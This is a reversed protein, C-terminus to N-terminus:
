ASRAPVGVWRQGAPIDKTVVAGAGVVANDGITVGPLVIVRAGLWVNRGIKVNGGRYGQDAYPVSPDETRHNATILYSGGGILTDRGIELHHCSGLFTYPGIYAREGVTIRAEADCEDSLWLICGRDIAAGPRLTIRDRPDVGCRVDITPDVLAGAKRLSALWLWKRWGSFVDPRPSFCCSVPAFARWYASIKDSLLRM